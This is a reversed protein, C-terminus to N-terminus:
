AKVIAEETQVPRVAAATSERVVLEAEFIVQSHKLYPFQIQDLVLKVAWQGEEFQKFAVSTIPPTFNKAIDTNDFSIISLDKPISLGHKEIVPFADSAYDDNVFIVATVEPADKLISEIADGGDGLAVWEPKCEIKHAELAERYGALRTLTYDYTTRGGAFAIAQHGLQVLYDTAKRAHQTEHRSIGSVSYNQINRGLVICPIGLRHSEDVLPEQQQAGQAGFIIVGDPRLGPDSLYLRSIHQDSADPVNPALRLDINHQAAATQIGRLVERFVYSSRLIVPHFVAVTLKKTSQNTKSHLQQTNSEELQHMAQMVSKRMHASVGPKNNLVLSVTSKSVGAREAIERVSAM